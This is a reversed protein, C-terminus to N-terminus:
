NEEDVSSYSSGSEVRLIREEYLIKAGHSFKYGVTSYLELPGGIESKDKIIM